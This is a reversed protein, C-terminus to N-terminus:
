SGRGSFNHRGRPQTQKPMRIRSTREHLLPLPISALPFCLMHCRLLYSRPYYLCLRLNRRSTNSSLANPQYQHYRCHFSIRDFYMSLPSPSSSYIRCFLAFSTTGPYETPPCYLSAHSFSSQTATYLLSSIYWMRGLNRHSVHVVL